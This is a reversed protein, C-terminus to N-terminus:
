RTKELLTDIEKIKEMEMHSKTTSIEINRIEYHKFEETKPLDTPFFDGTLETVTSDAVLESIEFKHFITDAKITKTPLVYLTDPSAFAFYPRVEKQRSDNYIKIEASIKYTKQFEIGICVPLTEMTYKEVKLYTSDYWLQVTDVRTKELVKLLSDRRELDGIVSIYAKKLKKPHEAYYSITHQFLERTIGYKHYIYEYYQEADDTGKRINQNTLMADVLHLDALIPAIEQPPIVDKSTGSNCSNLFILAFLIITFRMDKNKLIESKKICIPLLFWIM